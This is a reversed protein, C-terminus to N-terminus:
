KAVCRVTCGFGLNIASITNDGFSLNNMPYNPMASWYYGESDVLSLAGAIYERCGAAPLFITNNGSGFVRGNAPTTTWGSGAWLLIKLEDATPVRWGAPCPDNVSEWSAAGNGVWSDLWVTSGNSDVMPDTASWGIASNWQYFMGPDEPASAFTHPAAVNRTAWKIGGIVVGPDGTPPPNTNGGGNDNNGSDNKKCASFAAAMTVALAVSYFSHKKM